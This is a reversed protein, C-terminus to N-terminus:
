ASIKGSWWDSASLCGAAFPVRYTFGLTEGVQDSDFLGESLYMELEARTPWLLNESSLLQIASQIEITSQRLSRGYRKVVEVCWRSRRVRAPLLPSAHLWRMVKLGGKENAQVMSILSSKPLSLVHEELLGTRRAHGVYFTEWSINERNVAYVVVPPENRLEALHLLIGVVDDVHVAYCRSPCDSPLVVISEKCRSFALRSWDMHPGYVIGPRVVCVQVRDRGGLIVRETEIKAQTYWEKERSYGFPRAVLDSTIKPPLVAISSLHIVRRIGCAVSAELLNKCAQVNRAIRESDRVDPSKDVACNILTDCGELSNLMSHGDLLDMTVFDLDKWRALRPSSRRSIARPCDGRSLMRQTLRAGIEGSAGVIAVKV